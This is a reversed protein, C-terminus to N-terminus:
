PLIRHVKLGRFIFLMNVLSLSSEWAQQNGKEEGFVPRLCTMIWEMQLFYVASHPFLTGNKRGDRAPRKPGGPRTERIGGFVTAGGAIALGLRRPVPRRTFRSAVSHM